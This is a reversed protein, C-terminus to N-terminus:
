PKGSPAAPKADGSSTEPAAKAPKKAENPPENKGPGRSYGEAYWGGGKFVVASRSVLKELRGQCSRCRRLPRAGVKQIVETREGCRSCLYEYIPV